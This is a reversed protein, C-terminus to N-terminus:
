VSPLIRKQTEALAKRMDPLTLPEESRRLGPPMALGASLIRAFAAAPLPQAFLFGQMVRCGLSLLFYKDERSTSRSM